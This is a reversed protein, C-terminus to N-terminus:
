QRKYFPQNAQIKSYVFSTTYAIITTYIYLKTTKVLHKFQAVVIRQAQCAARFVKGAFGVGPPWPYVTIEYDVINYAPAAVIYRVTFFVAYLRAFAKDNQRAFRHM